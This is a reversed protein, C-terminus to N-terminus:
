RPIKQLEQTLLIILKQILIILQAKITAILQERAQGTVPLVSTNTPQLPTGGGGGSSSGSSTSPSGGSPSTPLPTPSPTPSPAVKNLFNEVSWGDPTSDYNVNWWNFSNANTPGGIITGLAGVPQAGLLVGSISPTSRVNLTATTQVRDNLSFKTSPPNPSPAQTTASVSSSQSSTNGAADFASVTYTYTTSPNLGTNQYSTGSTVTAIQSGSRYIKYGTVGVNDTSATWSLNIQSSSITSASLGSPVSPSTTDPVFSVYEYAGIDWALGQPRSTGDKDTSFYSNLSVGADKAITDTSNLHFDNEPALPTYSVFAPATTKGKPENASVWNAATYDTGRFFIHPTNTPNYYINGDFVFSNSSFNTSSDISWTPFYQDGKGTNYFINNKIENGSATPNGNYNSIRIPTWVNDDIFLNNLIKFNTLSSITGGSSYIRIYEPYSDISDVIKFINNYIWVDHPNANGAYVPDFDFASDGVNIFENGYVKIYNGTIQMMDPHQTSTYVSTTIVKFTNNYISLGSYGQVGDPGGYPYTAGPPRATNHMTEIYNNYIKNADWSGSSAAMSIAADGRVQRFISNKITINTAYNIRIPNNDNIFTLHDITIGTTSDSYIGVSYWNTNINRLNNIQIHNIGNVSGNFTIYNRLVTIGWTTATDGYQNYDFIVMGNHNSDSADVAITIPNAATGSTGVSWSETYTKSASGGSIYLTDGPKILSWNIAAFSKWANGWSTGNGLGTATNDVYWLTGFTAQTTASTSSSQASNNGAADFAPVTYSYTTNATLGTNQYTTGSTVTAIQTGARFVKYGTVGINDTSATWSLNIQSSSIATAILGTPVSPSATDLSANSVTVSINSATEQNGAQDRATASLTHSGNSTATTDWSISYPSATDESGLNTNDLKFQVGAVAINDFATATISVFAGSVTARNIPTTISVTPATTDPPPPQNGLNYLDTVEQPSLARNYVRVEDISGDFFRIDTREAGILLNREEADVDGFGAISASGRLIGDVYLYIQNVARDVVLVAHYWQGASAPFLVAAANADQRAVGRIGGAVAHLWWGNDETATVRSVIFREVSFDPAIVDPYAWASVSFSNTGFEHTTSNGADVYDNVGDFSLAQGIKGTTWTPGNTLTGTNNNGSSDNATTGSGEDFTWYGVLGSTQAQAPSGLLISLEHILGQLSSLISALQASNPTAQPSSTSASTASPTAASSPIPLAVLSLALFLALTLRVIAPHKLLSLM